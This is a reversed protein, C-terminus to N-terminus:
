THEVATLASTTALDSVSRIADEIESTKANYYKLLGKPTLFKRKQNQNIQTM